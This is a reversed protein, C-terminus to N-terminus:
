EHVHYFTVYYRLSHSKKTYMGISHYLKVQWAMGTKLEAVDIFISWDPQSSLIEDRIRHAIDSNQHSYSIFVDYPSVDNSKDRLVMAKHESRSTVDSTIDDAKHHQIKSLNLSLWDTVVSCAKTM